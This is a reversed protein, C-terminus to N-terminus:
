LGRIGVLEGPILEMGPPIKILVPRGWQPVGSDRWLQQPMLEVTPGLYVIQSDAVKEPESQKVLRVKTGELLRGLNQEDAYAIIERPATEAVALIPEGALVVEGPRRLLGEGPRRLLADGRRPHVEIVVGNLPSKLVLAERQMVLEDILKEQADIAKQIAELASDVAPQPPLNQVFESYRQEAQGLHQGAQELLHENEENKKALADHQAKISELERPAIADQKLLEEAIKVQVALDELLIKDTELVTRVELARFRANEVDVALRRSTSVSDAQRGAAEALLRHGTFALEATIREKEAALGAIQANIIEDDLIALTQGESVKEFLQVCLIKLRGDCPAAIQRVQGQALGVVEFRESRYRFLGVVGAVAALWVLIPLIHLRLRGPRFSKLSTGEM